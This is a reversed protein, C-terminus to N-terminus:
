SAPKPLVAFAAGGGTRSIGASLIANSARISGGSYKGGGAPLM